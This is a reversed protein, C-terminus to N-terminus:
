PVSSLSWESPVPGPNQLVRRLASRSRRQFSLLFHRPYGLAESLQRPQVELEQSRVPSPATGFWWLETRARLDSLYQCAVGVPPLELPLHRSLVPLTDCSM